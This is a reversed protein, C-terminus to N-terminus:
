KLRFSTQRESICANKFPLEHKQTRFCYKNQGEECLSTEPNLHQTSIGAVEVETGDRATLSSEAAPSPTKTGRQSPPKRQMKSSKEACCDRSPSSRFSFCCVSVEKGKLRQTPQREALRPYVKSM